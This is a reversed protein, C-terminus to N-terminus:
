IDEYCRSKSTPSISVFAVSKESRQSMGMSSAIVAWRNGHLAQLSVIQEDEEATWPGVQIGPRLYNQWQKASRGPIVSAIKKWQSNGHSDIYHAILLDEESTWARAARRPMIDRAKNSSSSSNPSMKLSLVHELCKKATRSDFYLHGNSSSVPSMANNQAGSHPRLLLSSGWRPNRGEHQVCYSSELRRKEPRLSQARTVRCDQAEHVAMKTEDAQSPYPRM